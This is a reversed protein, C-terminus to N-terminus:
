IRCKGNALDAFASHTTLHKLFMEPGLESTPVYQVVGGAPSAMVSHNASKSYQYPSPTQFVRKVGNALPTNPSSRNLRQGPPIYPSRASRPPVYGPKLEAIDTEFM